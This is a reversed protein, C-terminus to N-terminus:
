GRLKGWILGTGFVVSRLFLIPISALAISKNKKWAFAFFKTGLLIHLIVFLGAVFVFNVLIISIILSLVIAYFCLIQLKLSQPTYSDKLMKAKHKSYMKPRYFARFFKIKLYKGLHSPHTHYVIAKPNFVIKEGREHVKYSLEPDEGSAIPFSEDFGGLSDYVKKDYAASYSGVWDIEQAKKMKKYRNEIEIQGFQATLETQKTKYAGQVASVKKDNFPKLMETLWTKEAICDSDIFLIMKGKAKKAGANRAKAPGSNKQHLYVLKKSKIQKVEHATGDSSGDDVIIIEFTKKTQQSLLANIVQKIIKEANYTPIIISADM